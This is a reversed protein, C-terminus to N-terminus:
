FGPYLTPATGPKAASGPPDDSNEAAVNVTSSRTMDRADRRRHHRADRRCQAFAFIRSIHSSTRDIVDVPKVRNPAKGGFCPDNCRPPIDERTLVSHGPPFRARRIIRQTLESLPVKSGM